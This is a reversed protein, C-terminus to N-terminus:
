WAGGDMPNELCSYQLLTGNGERFFYVPSRFLCKELSLIYTSAEAVCICLFYISTLFCMLTHLFPLQGVGKTLIYIPVAALSFVIPPEKFFFLFLAVVHDLFGVGSCADPSFWVKLLYM